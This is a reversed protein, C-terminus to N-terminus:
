GHRNRRLELYIKHLVASLLWGMFWLFICGTIFLIIFGFFALITVLFDM